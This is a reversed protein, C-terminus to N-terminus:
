SSEANELTTVANEMKEALRRLTEAAEEDSATEAFSRCRVSNTRLYDVLQPYTM